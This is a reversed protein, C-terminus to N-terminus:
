AGELFTLSAREALSKVRVVSEGCGQSGLVNMESLPYGVVIIILALKTDTCDTKCLQTKCM